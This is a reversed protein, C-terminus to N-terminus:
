GQETSMGEKYGSALLANAAESSDGVARAKYQFHTGTPDVVHLQPGKKDVGGFLISVGFPRAGGYQTYAQMIDAVYKVISGMDIREGYTLMHQQAHDRAHKVLVRADAMIGAAAIGVHKDLSFIKQVTEAVLLSDVKRRNAILIVSDKCTIGMAIAGSAVAKQAYEVQLLRGEPNFITIARDYGMDMNPALKM